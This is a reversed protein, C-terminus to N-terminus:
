KKYIMIDDYRSTRNLQASKVVTTAGAFPDRCYGHGAMWECLEVIQSKDSTFYFYRTGDLCGLVDLYDTLKWYSEKSYTSTDTSLYPPDLLFVVEPQNSYEAFLERYDKRVREVGALYGDTRYHRQKVTNYLTEKEFGEPETVYKASFLISSSLTICDMFGPEAQIRELVKQRYEDTIRANEPVDRVIERIDAILANTAGVNDLRESYNDFDNYVVRAGPFHQKVTHSLFGSGGFLDVYTATPSFDALANKFEKLFRRKQGQFPLPATTYNYM